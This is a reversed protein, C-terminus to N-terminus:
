PSTRTLVTGAIVPGTITGVLNFFKQLDTMTANAVYILDHNKIAFREALFYGNVQRLNLHYLVPSYGEPENALDPVGLASVVAPREFRLLFVGEPDARPDSLGGAKAIAQALDLREAGFPVQTNNTTAGFVSFTEPTQVLTIIDGPWAFLDEQPDSLLATIPITVTQGNRTLRISTDYFSSKNGGAVAIVDLLRDGAPSLPVRAATAQEGLVTVSNSVAKSLTVIVQPQIIQEALRQEITQQVQLATHGAVPIRGAYPISIGGDAGVVQDPIMVSGSGQGGGEGGGQGPGTQPAFVQGNSTQWISVSVTDGIGITPSPPKGYSEIRNSLDTKPRSALASVVKSDIEVLDFHQPEKAAQDMVQSATPGATPVTSCGALGTAALCCAFVTATMCQLSYLSQSRNELRLDVRM